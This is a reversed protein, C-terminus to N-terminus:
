IHVQKECRIGGTCYLLIKEKEKGKLIKKVEPLLDKSKDVDPIIANEFKGVEGEYYNRMDVVTADKSIADHFEKYNLHQGVINM